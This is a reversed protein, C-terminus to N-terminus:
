FFQKEHLSHISDFDLNHIFLVVSVIHFTVTEKLEM